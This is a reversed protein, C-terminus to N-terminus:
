LIERWNVAITVESTAASTATFVIVQNPELIYDSLEQLSKRINEPQSELYDNFSNSQSRKEM